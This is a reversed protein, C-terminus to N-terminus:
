FMVGITAGVRIPELRTWSALRGRPDIEHRLGFGAAPTLEIRDVFVLRAGVALSSAFRMSSGVLRDGESVRTLGADFRLGAYPGIMAPGSWRALPAKGLWWVRTEAGFGMETVDYTEGGSWRRGISTAISMRSAVQREYQLTVGHNLLSALQISLANRPPQHLVVPPPSAEDARAAHVLLLSAAALLVSGARM